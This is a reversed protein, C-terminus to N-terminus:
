HHRHPSPIRKSTTSVDWGTTKFVRNDELAVMFAEIFDQQDKGMKSSM